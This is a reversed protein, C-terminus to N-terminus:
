RLKTQRELTMELRREQRFRWQKIMRKKTIHERDKGFQYVGACGGSGM